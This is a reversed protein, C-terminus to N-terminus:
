VWLRCLSYSLCIRTLCDAKVNLIGIIQNDECRFDLKTLGVDPVWESRFGIIFENCRVTLDINGTEGISKCYPEFTTDDIPNTGRDVSVRGGYIYQGPKCVFKNIFVTNLNPVAPGITTINRDGPTVTLTGAHQKANRTSSDAATQQKGQTYVFM